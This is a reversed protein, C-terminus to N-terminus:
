PRRLCAVETLFPAQWRTHLLGHGEPSWGFDLQFEIEHHRGFPGTAIEPLWSTRMVQEVSQPGTHPHFMIEPPRPLDPNTFRDYQTAATNRFGYLLRRTPAQGQVYM